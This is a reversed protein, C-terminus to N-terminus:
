VGDIVADLFTLYGAYLAQKDADTKVSKKFTDWSNSMKRFSDIESIFQADM